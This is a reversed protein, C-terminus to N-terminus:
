GDTKMKLDTVTTAACSVYGVRAGTGTGTVWRGGSGSVCGSKRIRVRQSLKWLLSSLLMLSNEQGKGDGARVGARGAVSRTEALNCVQEMPIVSVIAFGLIGRSRARTCFEGILLRLLDRWIVSTWSGVILIFGM